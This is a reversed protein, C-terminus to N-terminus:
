WRLMSFGLIQHYANMTNSLENIVENTKKISEVIMTDSQHHQQQEGLGSNAKLKQVEEQLVSILANAADKVEQHSSKSEM